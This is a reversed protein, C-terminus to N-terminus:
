IGYVGSFRNATLGERLAKVIPIGGAVAAEYGLNVAAQEAMRALSNGHHALLAKNATVLHKGNRM